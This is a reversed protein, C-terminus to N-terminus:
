FERFSLVRCFLGLFPLNFGGPKFSLAAGVFLSEYSCLPMFFMNISKICFHSIINVPM